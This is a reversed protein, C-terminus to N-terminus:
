FVKVPYNDKRRVGFAIALSFGVVLGTMSNEFMNNTLGYVFVYSFILFMFVDNRYDFDARLAYFAILLYYLLSAVGFSIFMYVFLNDAPNYLYPEFYIQSVGIGGLGRGLFYQWPNEVLRMAMPWTNEVRDVFSSLFIKQIPDHWDIAFGTALMVTPVIAALSAFVLLGIKAVARSFSGFEILFACMSIFVFALVAGKTTTLILAPLTVFFVIFRLSISKSWAFVAGSLIVMQCAVDISSRSFGALREIGAMTWSRAGTVDLNGISYSLGHWPFTVFYDLYVGITAAILFVVVWSIYRQIYSSLTPFAFVGYVLSVFVKIAFLVQLLNLYILGVLAHAFLLDVLFIVSWELKGVLFRRFILDIILCILVFDRLYIFSEAGFLHLGYRIPAEFLYSCLYFVLGVFHIM